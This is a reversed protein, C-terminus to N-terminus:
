GDYFKLNKIINLAKRPTQINSVISKVLHGFWKAKLHSSWSHVELVAKRLGYALPSLAIEEPFRLNFLRFVEILFTYSNELFISRSEQIQINSSTWNIPCRLDLLLNLFTPTSRQLNSFYFILIFASSSQVKSNASWFIQMKFNSPPQDLLDVDTISSCSRGRRLSLFILFQQQQFKNFENPIWGDQHRPSTYGPSPRALAENTRSDAPTGSRPLRTNVTRGIYM